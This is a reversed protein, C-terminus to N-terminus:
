KEEIKQVKYDHPRKRLLEAKVIADGPQLVDVAEQGSLVRGFVTHRGDLWGTPLHTIFFQSGNTDPGSNAMSLSGRFHTRRGEGLEDRFRYGADGSGNGRPCGGQAMFGAIVRHFKLGDYFKKEVLEVFNAVTNPAENEFLEIVVEGRSTTLKVRPLDDAKAEKERLALEAKWPAGAKKAMDLFQQAQQREEAELQGKLLAEFEATAEDFRSTAFSCIAHLRRVEATPAPAKLLGALTEAAPEFRNLGHQTRALRLAAEPDGPRLKAFRETDALAEVPKGWLLYTERRVDVLGADDPTKELEKGIAAVQAEIKQIVAVRLAQFEKALAELKEPDQQLTGAKERFSMLKEVDAKLGDFDARAQRAADTAEQLPSLALLVAFLSNM